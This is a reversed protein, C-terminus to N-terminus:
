PVGLLIILGNTFAVRFTAHLPPYSDSREIAKLENIAM